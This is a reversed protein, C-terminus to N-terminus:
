LFSCTLPGSTLIAPHRTISPQKVLDDVMLSRRLSTKNSPDHADRLRSFCSTSATFFPLSHPSTISLQSSKWTPSTTCHKSCTTLFGLNMEDSLPATLISHQLKKGQRGFLPDTFNVRSESSDTIAAALYVNVWKLYKIDRQHHDKLRQELICIYFSVKKLM